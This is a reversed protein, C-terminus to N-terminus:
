SYKAYAENDSKVLMKRLNAKAKSLNSKSTGVSIGLKEGIEEHTYGDIVYMSFVTRYAPSLCQVLGIIENYSLDDVVNVESYQNEGLYIDVENNHKLNKRYHDLATNILIRRLWAKFSRKQDYLDLKTFVKMFGDNLIEKAEDETSSYRVCVSMSYGYFHQYLLQQSERDNKQCGKLLSHLREDTNQEM